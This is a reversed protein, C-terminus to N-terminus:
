PHVEKRNNEPGSLGRPHDKTALHPLTVDSVNTFMEHITEVPDGGLRFLQPSEQGQDRTYALFLGRAGLGMDSPRLALLEERTSDIVMYTNNESDATRQSIRKFLGGCKECKPNAEWLWARAKVLVMCGCDKCPKAWILPVLPQIIPSGGLVTDLERLLVSITNVHTTKLVIPAAALKHWYSPCAPNRVALDIVQSDGTRINFILRKGSLSFDGHLAQITHEAQLGGAVQAAPQIAPVMGSAEAQRAHFQCGYTETEPAIQPHLCRWCPLDATEGPKGPKYVTISVIEGGMGGDIFPRNNLLAHESLFARCALSDSGNAVADVYEFVADPLEQAYGIRYRVIGTPGMRASKNAVVPSKFSGWTARESRSPFFPSRTRNSEDWEDFDVLLTEGVGVLRLALHLNQAGAGNGPVLVKGRKIVDPKYGALEERSYTRNVKEKHYSM